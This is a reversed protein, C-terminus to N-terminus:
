VVVDCPEADVVARMEDDTADYEVVGTEVQTSFIAAEPCFM